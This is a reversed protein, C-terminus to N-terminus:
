SDARRVLDRYANDPRNARQIAGGVNLVDIGGDVLQRVNTASVGGDWGITLHPNIAHLEPVKRLLSLDATGGFSGLSGSFILVHDAMRVLEAARKVTTTQLLAIGAAIDHDHLHALVGAVDDAEAHVTVSRPMLAILEPLVDTVRQYMVHIDAQIDEPWWVDHLGITMPSAFVDDTLDIHVHSAGSSAVVSMQDHYEDVTYATVTPVVLPSAKANAPAM